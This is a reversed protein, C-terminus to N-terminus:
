GNHEGEMKYIVQAITDIGSQVAERLRKNDLKLQAIEQNSKRLQDKLIATERIRNAETEAYKDM